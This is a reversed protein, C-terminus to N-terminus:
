NALLASVRSFIFLLGVQYIKVAQFFMSNFQALGQENQFAFLPQERAPIEIDLCEVFRPLGTGDNRTHVIVILHQCCRNYQCRGSRNGPTHDHTFRARLSQLFHFNWLHALCVISQSGDPGPYGPRQTTARTLAMSM